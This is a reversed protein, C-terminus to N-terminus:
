KTIYLPNSALNNNLKNMQVKLWKVLEILDVYTNLTNFSCQIHFGAVNLPLCDLTLPLCGWGSKKRKKEAYCVM